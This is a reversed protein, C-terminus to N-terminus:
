PRPSQPGERRRVDIEVPRPRMPYEIMVEIEAFPPRAEAVAGRGGEQIGEVLGDLGAEAGEGEKAGAIEMVEAGDPEAIEGPGNGEEGEIVVGIPINARRVPAAAAPDVPSQLKWLDGARGDPAAAIKFEVPGVAEKAVPFGEGGAAKLDVRPALADAAGGALAPGADGIVAPAGSEGAEDAGEGALADIDGHIHIAQARAFGHGIPLRTEEGGAIDRPREIFQPGAGIDHAAIDAAGPGERPMGAELLPEAAPKIMGPWGRMSAAWAARVLSRERAIM